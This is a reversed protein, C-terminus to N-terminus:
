GIGFQLSISFGDSVDKVMEAAHLCNFRVTGEKAEQKERSFYLALATIVDHTM